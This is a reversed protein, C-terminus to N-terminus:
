TKWGLSIESLNDDSSNKKYYLNFVNKIFFHIIHWIKMKIFLYIFLNDILQQIWKLWTNLEGKFVFPHTKV